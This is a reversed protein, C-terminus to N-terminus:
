ICFTNTVASVSAWGAEQDKLFLLIRILEWIVEVDRPAESDM